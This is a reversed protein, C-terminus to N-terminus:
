LRQMTGLAWYGVISLSLLFVWIGTYLWRERATIAVYSPQHMKPERSLSFVILAVILVTLPDFIFQNTLPNYFLVVLVGIMGPIWAKWRWFGVTRGGDLPLVPMLNFVHLLFGMEAIAFFFAHHTIFGLALAALTGLLGFVPGMVGIYAEDAASQPFKKLQIFAGLFPIFIPLTAPIGKQRNAVMHGSEHILILVVLGIGYIWGFAMGYALMTLLMAGFVLVLKFKVLIGVAITWWRRLRDKIGTRQSRVPPQYQFEVWGLQVRVARDGQMLVEHLQHLQDADLHLDMGYVNPMTSPDDGRMLWTGPLGAAMPVFRMLLERWPSESTLPHWEEKALVTM